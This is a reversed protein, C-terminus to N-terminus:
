RFYIRFGTQTLNENSMMAQAYVGIKYNESEYLSYEGNLSVILSDLPVKETDFNPDHLAIGVGVGWRNPVYSYKLGFRNLGREDDADRLSSSHEYFVALASNDHRYWDYQFALNGWPDPLFDSQALTISGYTQIRDDTYVGVFPFFLSAVMAFVPIVDMLHGGFM